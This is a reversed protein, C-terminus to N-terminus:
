KIIDLQWARTASSINITNLKLVTSILYKVMDLYGNGTEGNIGNITGQDGIGMETLYKVVDLHGNGSVFDVATPDFFKRGINKEPKIGISVM